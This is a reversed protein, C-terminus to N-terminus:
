GGPAERPQEQDPDGVARLQRAARRERVLALLDATPMAKIDGESEPPLSVTRETPMGEAQNIYPGVLKAAQVDGTAAADLLTHVTARLQVHKEAMAERIVDRSSLRALRAREEASIRRERMAEAKARAGESPDLLGSHAGCLVHSHLATVTCRGGARRVAICRRKPSGELHAPDTLGSTDVESDIAIDLPVSDLM